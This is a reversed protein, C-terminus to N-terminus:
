RASPNIYGRQAGRRFMKGVHPVQRRDAGVAELAIDRGRMSEFLQGCAQTFWPAQRQHERVSCCFVFDDGLPGRARGGPTELGGRDLAQLQPWENRVWFVFTPWTQSQSCNRNMFSSKPRFRSRSWLWRMRWLIRHQIFEHEDWFSSYRSSDTRADNRASGMRRHNPGVHDM